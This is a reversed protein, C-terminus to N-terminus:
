VANLIQEKIKDLSEKMQVVYMQIAADSAKAGLTNMERGMEQAIFGLKKGKVAKETDLTKLFHECHSKLRVIEENIDLKELYYVLEQEFRNKDVEHKEMLENLSQRIRSKIHNIRQPLLQEVAALNQNVLQIHHRLDTEMNGGENQRFQIFLEIARQLLAQLQQWESDTLTGKDQTLVDPIRMIVSLYNEQPINHVDSLAKLVKYYATVADQNINYGHSNSAEDITVQLDVKGRYLQSALLQRLLIEKEKYISPLRLNLDLYKSNLSKLEITVMKDAVTDTAKGYGTMSYLM